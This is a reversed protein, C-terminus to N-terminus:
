KHYYERGNIKKELKYVKSQLKPFRRLTKDRVGIIIGIYEKTINKGKFLEPQTKVLENLKICYETDLKKWNCKKGRFNSIKKCLKPRCPYRLKLLPLGLQEAIWRKSLKLKDIEGFGSVLLKFKECYEDDLNPAKIKESKLGLNFKLLESVPIGEFFSILSIEYPNWNHWM